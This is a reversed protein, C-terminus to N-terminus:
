VFYHVVTDEPSIAHPCPKARADDTFREPSVRRRYRLARGPLEAARCHAKPMVPLQARAWEPLGIRAGTEHGM